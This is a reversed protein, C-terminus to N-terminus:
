PEKRELNICLVGDQAVKTQNSGRSFGKGTDVWVAHSVELGAEAEVDIAAWSGDPYAEVRLTVVKKGSASVLHLYSVEVADLQINREHKM